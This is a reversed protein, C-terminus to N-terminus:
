TGIESVFEIWDLAMRPRESGDTTEFVFYLDHKGSVAKVPIRLEKIDM